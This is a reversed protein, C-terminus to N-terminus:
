RVGAEELGQELAEDPCISYLELLEVQEEPTLQSPDFGLARVRSEPFAGIEVPWDQEM